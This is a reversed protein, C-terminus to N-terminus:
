KILRVISYSSYVYYFEKKYLIKWKRTGEEIEYGFIRRFGSNEFAGFM